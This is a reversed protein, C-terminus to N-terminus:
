KFPNKGYGVWIYEEKAQTKPKGVRNKVLYIASMAICIMGVAAITEIM